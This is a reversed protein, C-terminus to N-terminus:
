VRAGRAPKRPPLKPRPVWMIRTTPAPVPEADAIMDELYMTIAKRISSRVERRSRGVVACGPLDPVYAGFSRGAQEIVVAYEPAKM